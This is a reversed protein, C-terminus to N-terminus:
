EAFKWVERCQARILFNFNDFCSYIKQTPLTICLFNFYEMLPKKLLNSGIWLKKHELSFFSGIKSLKIGLVISTIASCKKM